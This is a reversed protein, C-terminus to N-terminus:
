KEWELGMEKKIEYLTLEINEKAFGILDYKRELSQLIKWADRLKKIDNKIIENM